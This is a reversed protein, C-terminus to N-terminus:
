QGDVAIGLRVWPGTYDPEADFPQDEISLADAKAFRYGAVSSLSWPGGLSWQVEGTVQAAFGSGSAEFEFDDGRFAGSVNFPLLGAGVGYRVSSTSPFFYTAHIALAWAAVDFTLDDDHGAAFWREVGVRLLVRDRVGFRIAAGALAGSEITGLDSGVLQNFSELSDNLESMEYGTWGGYVEFGLGKKAEATSVVVVSGVLLASMVMRRHM